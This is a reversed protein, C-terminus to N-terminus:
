SQVEYLAGNGTFCGEEEETVTGEFPGVTAAADAASAYGADRAMADLAEDASGAEYVGFDFGQESIIRFQAMM